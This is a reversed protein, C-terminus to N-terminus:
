IHTIFTYTFTHIFTSTIINEVQQADKAPFLKGAFGLHFNNKM